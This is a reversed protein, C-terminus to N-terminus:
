REPAAAPPSARSRRAPHARSGIHRDGLALAERLSLELARKARPSFPLHGARGRGRAALAGPGFAQEVSRSCRTSTSASRRSRGRTWGTPAARSRGGRAARRPRHRAVRPAGGGAAAIGLLLHETGVHDHGLAAAEEQACVVVDRAARTFREFM